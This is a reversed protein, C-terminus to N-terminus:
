EFITKEFEAIAEKRLNTAKTRLEKIRKKQTNIHSVIENQIEIAPLPIQIGKFVTENIRPMRAGTSLNSIQEQVINSALYYKFYYPNISEKISFVFFESSCILNNDDLENYWYKNLYPRLKGYLFFNKPILTTQSKIENGFIESVNTLTGTDKEINEMGIYLFKSDPHKSTEIRISDGNSDTMFKNICYDFSYCDFHSNFQQKRKQFFLIDWRETDKFNIFRLFGKQEYDQTTTQKIGLIEILYNEIDSNIEAAEKELSEAQHIKTNYLEVLNNQQELTPLPIQLTKLIEFSLNQRVSGTTANCIQNHFRNTKMTLFLYDPTISSKCSFVVYAPSIYEYLNSEKKIGISGVNVRYPNYAIWGCEMRKYKQKIKAGNETYADFIGTQNNVGLIGYDKNSDNIKFKEKQEILIDSLAIIQYDSKIPISFYRKIDWERLDTFRIFNLYDYHTTEMIM